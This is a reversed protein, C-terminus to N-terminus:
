LFIHMVECIDFITMSNRRNFVSECRFEGKGEEKLM